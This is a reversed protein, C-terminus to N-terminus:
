QKYCDTFDSAEPHTSILFVLTKIVKEHVYTANQIDELYGYPCGVTMDLINNTMKIFAEIVKVQQKLFAYDKQLQQLEQSTDSTSSQSLKVKLNAMYQKKYMIFLKRAERGEETQVQMMLHDFGDASLKIIKKKLLAAKENPALVRRTTLDRGSSSDIVYDENEILHNKVARVANDIRTFGARQWVDELNISFEKGDIQDDLVAFVFEQTLVNTTM